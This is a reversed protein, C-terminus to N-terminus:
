PLRYIAFGQEALREAHRGAAAWTTFGGSRVAYGPVGGLDIEVIKGALGRDKLEEVKSVALQRNTFAGVQVTFKRSIVTPLKAEARRAFEGAPWRKRVKELNGVAENWRGQRAQALGLRYTTEDMAVLGEYSRLVKAYVKQAAGYRETAFLTHALGLTADARLSRDRALREANRYDAEALLYRATKYYANGRGLYGEAMLAPSTQSGLFDTYARVSDEYEAALYMATADGLLAPREHSPGSTFACGALLAASAALFFLRATEARDLHRLRHRM